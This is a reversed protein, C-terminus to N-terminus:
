SPYADFIGFNVCLKYRIDNQRESPLSLGERIKAHHALEPWRFIKRSTTDVSFRARCSSLSLDFPPPRRGGDIDASEALRLWGYSPNLSRFGDCRSDM